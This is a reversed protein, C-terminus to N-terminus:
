IQEKSSDDTDSNESSEVTILDDHENLTTEEDTSDDGNISVKQTEVWTKGKAVIRIALSKTKKFIFKSIEKVNEPLNPKHYCALLSAGFGCAFSLAIDTVSCSNVHIFKVSTETNQM